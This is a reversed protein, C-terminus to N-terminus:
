KTQSAIPKRSYQVLFSGGDLLVATSPSKIRTEPRKSAQDGSLPGKEQYWIVHSRSGLDSGACCSARQWSALSTPSNKQTSIYPESGGNPLLAPRNRLHGTLVRALSAQLHMQDAGQSVAKAPMGLSASSRRSRCRPMSGVDGRIEDSITAHRSGPPSSTVMGVQFSSCMRVLTRKCPQEVPCGRRELQVEAQCAQM